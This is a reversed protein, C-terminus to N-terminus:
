SEYFIRINLIIKNLIFNNWTVKNVKDDREDVRISQQTLQINNRDSSLGWGCSNLNFPLDTGDGSLSLNSYLKGNLKIKIECNHDLLMAIGSSHNLHNKKSYNKFREDEIEEDMGSSCVLWNTSAVENDVDKEFLKTLLCFSNSSKGLDKRQEIDSIETIEVKWKLVLSFDNSLKEYVEMSRVNRLFILESLARYRYNLLTDRIKIIDHNKNSIESTIGKARLPLRFLTGKFPKREELRFPEENDLTFRDFPEFQNYYREIINNRNGKLDVFNFKIGPVSLYKKHPDFMVIYKGTIFSPLDTYHYCTNFGLGFKGIKEYKDSKSGIGLKVLKELDEETFVKDNYILIAPGQWHKLGEDETILDSTKYRSKDIIISFRTANADDANQLFEQFIVDDHYYDQANQFICTIENYIHYIDLIYM